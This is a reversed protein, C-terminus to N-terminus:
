YSEGWSINKELQKIKDKQEKIIDKVVDGLSIMGVLKSNELVPLHRIHHETMVVMCANIDEEPSTYFVEATMIDKVKTEKSSRGKLIVKRAYDRESLIGALSEGSVVALAGIGYEDMLKIADFVTHNPSVSYIEASKQKLLEAVTTM